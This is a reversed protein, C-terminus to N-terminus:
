TKCCSPIVIARGVSNPARSAHGELTPTSKYGQWDVRSV